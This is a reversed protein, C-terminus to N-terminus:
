RPCNLYIPASLSKGVRARLRACRVPVELRIPRIDDGRAVIRGNWFITFGGEGALRVDLTRVEHLTAGVSHWSQEGAIRVQLSCAEPGRVCTRGEIIADHVASLTRARALVFTTARLHHSHSDTGGVPTMPREAPRADFFALTERLTAEDDQLALADRIHSATLNFAEVAQAHHAVFQMEPPIDLMPETWARWSINARAAAFPSRLSRVFPHHVVFTGGSALWARFFAAPERRSQAAPVARAVADVNAFALGVHGYHHDTYEFGAEFMVRTSLARIRARLDRQARATEELQAEDQFFRAAIHPTLVVFDLGEREALTVTEELTRVVDGAEDPPLVHCHTDGALLLYQPGDSWYGYSSASGLPSPRYADAMLM